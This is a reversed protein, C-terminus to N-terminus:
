LTQRAVSSVAGTVENEFTSDTESEHTASVGAGRWTASEVVGVTRTKYRRGASIAMM